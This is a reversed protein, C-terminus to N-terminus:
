HKPDVFGAGAGDPGYHCRFCWGHSPTIDDFSPKKMWYNWHCTACEAPGGDSNFTDGHHEHNTTNLLWADAPVDAHGPCPALPLSSLESATGLVGIELQSSDFSYLVYPQAGPMVSGDSFRVVPSEKQGASYTNIRYRPKASPGIYSARLKRGVRQELAEGPDDIRTPVLDEVDGNIELFYDGSAVSALNFIATGNAITAQAITAGAKDLLLAADISQAKVEDDDQDLDPDLSLTLM